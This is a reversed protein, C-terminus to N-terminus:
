TRPYYRLIKQLFRVFILTRRQTIVWYFAEFHLNYREWRACKGYLYVCLLYPSNELFAFLYFFLYIFLFICRTKERMNACFTGQTNLFTYRFYSKRGRIKAFLFDTKYCPYPYSGCTNVHGCWIEPMQWHIKIFSIEFTWFYQEDKSLRWTGCSSTIMNLNPDNFSNNRFKQQTTYYSSHM